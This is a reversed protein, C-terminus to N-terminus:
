DRVQLKEKKENLQDTVTPSPRLLERTSRSFAEMRKKARENVTDHDIRPLYPGRSVFRNGKLQELMLANKASSYERIKESVLRTREIEHVNRTADLTNGVNAGANVKNYWQAYYYVPDM